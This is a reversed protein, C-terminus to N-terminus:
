DRALGLRRDDRHRVPLHNILRGRLLCDFSQRATKGIFSRVAEYECGRGAQRILSSVALKM